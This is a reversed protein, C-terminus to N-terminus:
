EKKLKCDQWSHHHIWECSTCNIQKLKERFRLRLKQCKMFVKMIQSDDEGMTQVKRSTRCERRELFDHKRLVVDKGRGGQFRQAQLTRGLENKLTQIMDCLRWESEQLSLSIIHILTIYKHISILCMFTVSAVLSM